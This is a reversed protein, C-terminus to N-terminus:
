GLNVTREALKAGDLYVKVPVSSAGVRFRVLENNSDVAQKMWRGGIKVSVSKGAAGFVRVAVRNSFGGITAGVKPKPTGFSIAFFKDLTTDAVGFHDRRVFVGCKTATCDVETGARTKFTSAIKFENVPQVMTAGMRISSAATTLWAQHTSSCNTPRPSASEGECLMLYVGQDQPIGSVAVSVTSEPITLGNPNTVSVSFTNAQAPLSSFGLAITAAIALVKKM